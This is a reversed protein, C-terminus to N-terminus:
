TKPRKGQVPRSSNTDENKISDKLKRGNRHFDTNYDRLVLGRKEAEKDLGEALKAFHTATNWHKLEKRQAHLKATQLHHDTLEKFPIYKQGDFWGDKKPSTAMQFSDDVKKKKSM